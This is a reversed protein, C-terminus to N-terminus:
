KEIYIGTPTIILAGASDLLADGKVVVTQGKKLNFLKQVDYPLVEGQEGLFQVTALGQNKRAQAQCFPCSSADHGAQDHEHDGHEHDGHEHDGHEHDGHEHDGHEHDGHKATSDYINFMAKGKEFWPDSGGVTGLIAVKEIEHVHEHDHEHDHHAHDEAGHEHAGDHERKPHEKRADEGAHEEAAAQQKEEAPLAPEKPMPPEPPAGEYNAAETTLWDGASKKGPSESEGGATATQESAADERHEEEHEKQLINRVELISVVGEPRSELVFRDRVEAMEPDLEPQGPSCGVLYFAAVLCISGLAIRQRM